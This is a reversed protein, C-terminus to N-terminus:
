KMIELGPKVLSYITNGISPYLTALWTILPLAGFTAVRLYFDTGLEHAAKDTIRSLLPNRHMQALVLVIGVSFALFAGTIAWDIEQKPQFPYSNLALIMLVMAATIFVLLYRMQALIARIFAVYRLALFEEALQIVNPESQTGSEQKVSQMLSHREKLWHPLLICCLIKESCAAYKAEIEQLDSSCM